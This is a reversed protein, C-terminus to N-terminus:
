CLVFNMQTNIEELRFQKTVSVAARTARGQFMNSAMLEPQKEAEEHLEMLVDLASLADAVNKINECEPRKELLCLYRYIEVRTEASRCFVSIAMMADIAVGLITQSSTIINLYVGRALKFFFEDDCGHANGGCLRSTFQTLFRLITEKWHRTAHTDTVHEILNLILKQTGPAHHKSTTTSASTEIDCLLARVTEFFWACWMEKSASSMITFNKQLCLGELLGHVCPLLYQLPHVGHSPKRAVNRLLRLFQEFLVMTSADKWSLCMALAVQQLEHLETTIVYLDVEHTDSGLAMLQVSNLAFEATLCLLVISSDHAYTARVAAIKKSLDRSSVPKCTISTQSRLIANVTNELLCTSLRLAFFVDLQSLSGMLASCRGLAYELVNDTANRYVADRQLALSEFLGNRVLGYIVEGFVLNSPHHLLHLTCMVVPDATSVNRTTAIRQICLRALRATTVPEWTLIINVQGKHRLEKTLKKSPPALEFCLHDVPLHPELAQVVNPCRLLLNLTERLVVVDCMKYLHSSFIGTIDSMQKQLVSLPYSNLLHVLSAQLRGGDERDQEYAAQSQTIKKKAGKRHAETRKLTDMVLEVTAEFSASPLDSVVASVSAMLYFISARAHPDNVNVRAADSLMKWVSAVLVNDASHLAQICLGILTDVIPRLEKDTTGVLPSLVTFLDAGVFVLLHSFPLMNDYATLIRKKDKALLADQLQQMYVRYPEKPRARVTTQPSPYM